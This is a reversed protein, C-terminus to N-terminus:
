IVHVHIFNWHCVKFSSYCTIWLELSGAWVRSLELIESQWSKCFCVLSLQSSCDSCAATKISSTVLIGVCLLPSNYGIFHLPLVQKGKLLLGFKIKVESGSSFMVCLVRVKDRLVVHLCFEVLGLLLYWLSSWKFWETYTVCSCFGVAIVYPSKVAFLGVRQNSRCFAVCFMFCSHIRRGDCHEPTAVLLWLTHETITNTHHLTSTIHFLNVSLYTVFHCVPISCSLM